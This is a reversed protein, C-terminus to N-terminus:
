FQFLEMEINNRSTDPDNKQTSYMKESSTPTYFSRPESEPTQESEESESAKTKPKLM